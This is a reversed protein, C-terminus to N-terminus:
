DRDEIIAIPVPEELETASASIGGEPSISRVTTKTTYDLQSSAEALSMNDGGNQVTIQHKSESTEAVFSIKGDANLYCLWKEATPNDQLNLEIPNSITEERDSYMQTAEDISHGVRPASDRNIGSPITVSGSVIDVREGVKLCESSLKFEKSDSGEAVERGIAVGAAVLGALATM